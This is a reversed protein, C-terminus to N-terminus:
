RCESHTAENLRRNPHNHTPILPIILPILPTLPPILTCELLHSLHILIYGPQIIRIVWLIPTFGGVGVAVLGGVRDYGRHYTVSLDMVLGHVGGVEVM